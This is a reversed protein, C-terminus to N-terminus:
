AEGPRSELFALFAAHKSLYAEIEALHWALEGLSRGKPDPRFDYQTTPLAALLRQTNKAEHEWSGLFMELENSPM